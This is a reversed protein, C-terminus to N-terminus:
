KRGSLFRRRTGHEAEIRQHCSKHVWRVHHLEEPNEKSFYRYSDHHLEGETSRFRASVSGGGTTFWVNIQRHALTIAEADETGFSAAWGSRRAGHSVCRASACGKVGRM